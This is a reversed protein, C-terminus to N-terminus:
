RFSKLYNLGDVISSVRIIGVVLVNEFSHIGNLIWLTRLSVYFHNEKNQSLHDRKSTDNVGYNNYPVPLACKAM